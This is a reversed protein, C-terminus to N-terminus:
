MCLYVKYLVPYTTCIAATRCLVRLGAYSLQWMGSVCGDATGPWWDSLGPLLYGGYMEM